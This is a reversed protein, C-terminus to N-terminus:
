RVRVRARPQDDSQPIPPRPIGADGSAIRKVRGPTFLTVTVSRGDLSLVLQRRDIETVKWGGIEDGRRLRVPRDAPGARVLAQAGEANLVIGILAVTPPPALPVREAGIVSPPAPAAPPRRTPSFLPRERTASLRDLPAPVAPNDRVVDRPAQISADHAASWQAPASGDIAATLAAAACAVRLTRVPRGEGALGNLSLPIGAAPQMGGLGVALTLMALGQGNKSAM